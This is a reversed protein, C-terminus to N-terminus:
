HLRKAMRREASVFGKILHPDFDFANLENIVHFKIIESRALASLLALVSLRTAIQACNNFRQIVLLAADMILQPKVAPPLKYTRFDILLAFLILWRFHFTNV